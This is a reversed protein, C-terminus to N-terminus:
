EDLVAKQEAQLKEAAKVSMNLLDTKQIQERTLGTAAVQQELQKEAVKLRENEAEAVEQIKAMEETLRERAAHALEGDGRAIIELSSLTRQSALEAQAAEDLKEQTERNQEQLAQVVRNFDVNFDVM